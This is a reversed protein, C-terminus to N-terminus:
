YRLWDQLREPHDYVTACVFVSNKKNKFASKDRLVLPKETEVRSYNKEGDKLYILKTISGNIISPLDFGLCEVMLLRHTTRGFNARVWRTVSDEHIVRVKKSRKGNLECARISKGFFAEDHVEALIVVINRPEGNVIRDDLYARRPVVFVSRNSNGGNTKYSVDHLIELSQYTRSVPRQLKDPKLSAQTVDSVLNVHFLVPVVAILCCVLVLIKVKPKHM